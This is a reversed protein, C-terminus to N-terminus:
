AWRSSTTSRSAPLCGAMMHYAIRKVLPAYKAIKEDQSAAQPTPKVAM